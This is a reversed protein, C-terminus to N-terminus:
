IGARPVCPEGQLRRHSFLACLSLFASGGGCGLVVRWVGRQTVRDVDALWGRSVAATKVSNTSNGSCQAADIVYEARRIGVVYEVYELKYM